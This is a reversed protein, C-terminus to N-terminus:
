AGILELIILETASVKAVLATYYAAITAGTSQGNVASASGAIYFTETSKDTYILLNGNDVNKIICIQGTQLVPLQVGYSGNAGTVLCFQYCRKADAYTSGAAAVTGCSVGLASAQEPKFGLMCLNNKECTM